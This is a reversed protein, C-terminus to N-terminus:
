ESRLATVPDVRTARRTPVWAALAAVASLVLVVSGFVMPDWPNIGTVGSALMRGLGVAGLLGLVAGVAIVAGSSRMVLGRVDGIKAGLAMRIGIERTRQAVSFSLVGYIGAAAMVLAFFAFAAFMGAITDMTALADAFVRRATRIDAVPQEPDIKWVAERIAPALAMPEGLAEVLMAAGTGPEQALATYVQPAAVVSPDPMVEDGVTGVVTLWEGGSARIRSGMPDRDAWFREVAAANIVAVHEAGSTDAEGLLRGSLRELRMMDFYAPGV